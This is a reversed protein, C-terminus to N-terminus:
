EGSLKEMFLIEEYLDKIRKSDDLGLGNRFKLFEECLELLLIDDSDRSPIDVYNKNIYTHQNSCLNANVTLGTAFYGEINKEDEKEIRVSVEDFETFGLGRLCSIYNNIVIAVSDEYTLQTPKYLYIANMIDLIKIYIKNSSGGM